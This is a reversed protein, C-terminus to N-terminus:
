DNATSGFDLFDSQPTQIFCAKENEEESRCERERRGRARLLPRRRDGPCARVRFREEVTHHADQDSRGGAPRAPNPKM